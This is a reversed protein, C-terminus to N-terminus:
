AFAGNPDALTQVATLIAEAVVASSTPNAESVANTVSFSYSGAAGAATIEHTTRTASPDAVLTVRTDEWLGTAAALACAVNLSGPFREVADGVSGSFLEIPESAARLEQTESESMWGQVLTDARKTTVLEATDIGGPIGGRRSAAALVDLGGIAGSTLRLTGPGALLAARTEADALAGVSAVLLERGAEIVRPGLATAARIGACEVLLDSEALARDIDEGFDTVGTAREGLAEALAGPRRTLVGSLKAGRIRGAALEDAVRAGIAGLGLVTVRLPGSGHGARAEALSRVIERDLRHTGAGIEAWRWIAAFVAAALAASEIEARLRATAGSGGTGSSGGTSGPALRRALVAQRLARGTDLEASVGMAEANAIALALTHPPAGGLRAALADAGPSTDLLALQEDLAFWITAAKGDFYNFFSSRSVGARRTIDAVTTADYGQELFLECAADALTERSSALPRGRAATTM